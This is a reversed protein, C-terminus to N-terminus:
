RDAPQIRRPEVVSESSPVFQSSRGKRQRSIKGGGHAARLAAAQLGVIDLSQLQQWLVLDVPEVDELVGSERAFRGRLSGCVRALSHKCAFRPTVASAHAFCRM